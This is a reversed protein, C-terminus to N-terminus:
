QAKSDLQATKDALVQQGLQALSIKPVLHTLEITNVQTQPSSLGAQLQLLKKSLSKGDRDGKRKVVKKVNVKKKNTIKGGAKKITLKIM